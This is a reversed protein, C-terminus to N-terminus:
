VRNDSCCTAYPPAAVAGASGARAPYKKSPQSRSNSAVIASIVTVAINRKGYLNMIEQSSSSSVRISCVNTSSPTIGVCASGDLGAVASYVYVNVPQVGFTTATVPLAM